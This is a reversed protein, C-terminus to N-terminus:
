EILLLKYKKGTISVDQPQYNAFRISVENAASVWAAAVSFDMVDEIVTVFVPYGAIAGNVTVKVLGSTNPAITNENDVTRDLTIDYLTGTVMRADTATQWKPKGDVDTVLLSKVAGPKINIAVEKLLAGTGNTIELLNATTTTIDEGGIVLDAVNVPKWSVGDYQLIQDTQPAAASIEIGQIKVVKPNPYTGSLDGAASGTAEAHAAYLAYPVSLLQSAGALEFNGGGNPDIEVQLYKSGAAWDVTAISGVTNSAGAGGIAVSYLGLANTTVTRQEQYNLTGSASGNLVSLRISVTRGSVPSGDANRLAGQYNFEHPAQAYGSKFFLLLTLVSISLLSKYM